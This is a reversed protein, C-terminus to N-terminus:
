QLPSASFHHRVLPTQETNLMLTALLERGDSMWGRHTHSNLSITIHNVGEHFLKGPLHVDSTYLRGIKEGNIHLHAHGTLEKLPETGRQPPQFQFHRIRIELNYGSMSDEFLALELQPVPLGAPMELPSHDMGHGPGKQSQAVAMNGFGILLGALLLSVSVRM